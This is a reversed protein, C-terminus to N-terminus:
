IYFFITDHTDISVFFYFSALDSDIAVLVGGVIPADSGSAPVGDVFGNDVGFLILAFLTAVSLSCHQNENIAGWVATRKGSVQM